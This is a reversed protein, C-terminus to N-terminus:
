NFLNRIAPVTLWLGVGAAIWFGACFVIPIICGRPDAVEFCDHDPLDQPLTM